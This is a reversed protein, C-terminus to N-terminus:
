VMPDQLSVSIQFRVRFGQHPPKPNLVKPYVRGSLDSSEEATLFDLEFLFRWGLM